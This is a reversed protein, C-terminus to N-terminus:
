VTSEYVKTSKYDKCMSIKQEGGDKWVHGLEGRVPVKSGESTNVKSGLDLVTSKVHRVLSFSDSEIELQWDLQDSRAGGRFWANGLGSVHARVADQEDRVDCHRNALGDLVEDRQGRRLRLARYPKAAHALHNPVGAAVAHGSSELAVLEHAVSRM